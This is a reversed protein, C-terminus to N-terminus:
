RAVLTASGCEDRRWRPAVQQDRQDHQHQEGHKAILESLVEL